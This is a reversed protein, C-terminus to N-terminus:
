TFILKFVINPLRIGGIRKRTPSLGSGMCAACKFWFARLNNRSCLPLGEKIKLLSLLTAVPCSVWLVVGMGYVNYEDLLVVGQVM